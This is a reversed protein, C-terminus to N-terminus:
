GLEKIHATQESRFYTGLREDQWERIEKSGVSIRDELKELAHLHFRLLRRCAGFRTQRDDQPCPTIVRDIGHLTAPTDLDLSHRKVLPSM